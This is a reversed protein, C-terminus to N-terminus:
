RLPTIIWNTTMGKGGPLTAYHRQKNGPILEWRSAPQQYPQQEGQYSPKRLEDVILHLEDGLVFSLGKTLRDPRDEDAVSFAAVEQPLAQGLAMSLEPALLEAQGRSFVRRPQGQSFPLLSGEGYDLSALIELVVNSPVRYPHNHPEISPRWSPMERLVVSLTDSQHIVLNPRTVCSPSSCLALLLAAIVGIKAVISNM